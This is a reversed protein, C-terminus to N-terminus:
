SWLFNSNTLRSIVPRYYYASLRYRKARGTRIAIEVDEFFDLAMECFGVDTNIIEATESPTLAGHQVLATLAFLHHDTLEALDELSPRRFLSVQLTESTEPILNRIWFDLAVRPNGESFEQLLRFYGNATRVVEYYSAREDERSVVLDSYSIKLSTAENRRDVLDQIESASWKRIELSHGFFHKREQVRRLYKWGYKNFTLVWYHRHDTLNVVDLLASLGEFGQIKRFYFHHCDDILVARPECELLLEVLQARDSPVEELGFLDALYSFLADVTVIKDTLSAYIPEIGHEESDAELHRYFQNLLTSKGVGQEGTVSVSGQRPRGRWEEWPELFESWVDEREVLYREDYLPRDEFLEEYEAPLKEHREQDPAEEQQDRQKLEIKKRFLFNAVRQSLETETFYRRVLLWLEVVFVYISAVAIIGVGYFRDKREDVFEAVSPLRTGALDVFLSAIEDRWTSLEYYVIGLTAWRFLAAAIWWLVTHGFAASITWPLFWALLGFVLVRRVSGVLKLAHDVEIDVLDVVEAGRRGSSRPTLRGFDLEPASRSEADRHSRPLVVVEVTAMAIWYIFVLDVLWLLTDAEPFTGALYTTAMRVVLYLAVPWILTRLLEGFKIAVTARDRFFSRRFLVEMSRHVLGPLYRRLLVFMVPILALRWLLGFVWGWFEPSYIRSGLTKLQTARLQFLQSVHRRAEDFSAGVNEWNESKWLDFFEHRMEDSIRPLVEEIAGNYYRIREAHLDIAQRHASVVSRAKEVRREELKAKAVALEIRQEVLESDSLGEAREEIKERAEVAARFDREAVQEAGIAARLAALAETYDRRAGRRHDQLQRLLPDVESRAEEEAPVESISAITSETSERRRAFTDRAANRAASLERITRSQQSATDAVRELIQARESILRKLDQDREENQERKAAELDELAEREAEDAREVGERDSESRSTTEAIEREMEELRSQFLARDSEAGEVIVELGEARARHLTSRARARAAEVQLPVMASEPLASNESQGELSEAGVEVQRAYDRLDAAESSWFGVMIGLRENAGELAERDDAASADFGYEELRGARGRSSGEAESAGDESGGGSPGADSDSGSQVARDSSGADATATAGSVGADPENGQAGAESVHFAIAFMAVFVGLWTTEGWAGGMKGSQFQDM